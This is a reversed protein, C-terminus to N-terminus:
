TEIWIWPSHPHCFSSAKQKLSLVRQIRHHQVCASWDLFFGKQCEKDVKQMDAQEYLTAVVHKCEM